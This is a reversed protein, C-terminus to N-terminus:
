SKKSDVLFRSVSGPVQQAAACKFAKMMAPSLEPSDEDFTIEYKAAERVKQLQEETPRDDPEITYEKIM